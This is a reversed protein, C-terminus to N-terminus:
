LPLDIKFFLYMESGNQETKKNKWEHAAQFKLYADIPKAFIYLPVGITLHIYDRVSRNKKHLKRKVLNVVFRATGFFSLTLRLRRLHKKAKEDTALSTDTLLKIYDLGNQAISDMAVYHHWSYYEKTLTFGKKRYLGSLQETNLRRVHGEDDFFFRNELKPNIGDKRQSCIYHELSGENGCPLIHLISSKDKLYAHMEDLSDALNYVHELVHHTFLFDFKKGAARKDSTVFFTCGPYRKIANEVAITSIDTGYVKWGSPLAQKIVNTFVGNGCGFDLAEGTDPLELMRIIELVRQRKEAPWEDMYGKSYRYQYFDISADRDYLYPTKQQPLVWKYPASIM